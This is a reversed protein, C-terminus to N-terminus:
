GGKFQSDKECFELFTESKLDKLALKILRESNVGLAELIERITSLHPTEIKGREIQSLHTQSIGAKEATTGQNWGRHERLLKLNEGIGM